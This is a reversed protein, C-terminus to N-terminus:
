VPLLIGGHLQEGVMWGVLSEGDGSSAFKGDATWAVWREFDRTILFSLVLEGQQLDYWRITSDSQAVIAFRSNEPVAVQLAESSIRRGPRNEMTWRHRFQCDVLYLRHTTGVLLAKGDPTFTRDIISEIGQSPEFRRIQADSSNGQGRTLIIGGRKGRTTV